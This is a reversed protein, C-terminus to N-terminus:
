VIEPMLKETLDIHYLSKLADVIQESTVEHVKQLNNTEICRRMLVFEFTRNHGGAGRLVAGDRGDNACVEYLHERFAAQSLNKADKLLGGIDSDRVDNNRIRPLIYHLAKVPVEAIDSTDYGRKICLEEYIAMARNAERTDISIEPLKLFDHWTDVGEGIAKQYANDAYLQFLMQGMKVGALRSLKLVQVLEQYLEHANSARQLEKM